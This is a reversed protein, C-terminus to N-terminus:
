DPSSAPLGAVRGAADAARSRTTFGADAPHLESQTSLVGHTGRAGGSNDHTTSATTGSGGSGGPAKVPEPEPVGDDAHEAAAYGLDQAAAPAAPAAPAATVAPPVPTTTNPPPVVPPPALVPTTPVTIPTPALDIRPQGEDRDTTASGSSSGEPLIVPPEADPQEAPPHAIPALVDGSTDIVTGVTDTVRDTVGGVADTLGGFLDDVLGGFDQVRTDDQPREEASATGAFAVSLLWGAVAVAAVFLARRLLRSLEM